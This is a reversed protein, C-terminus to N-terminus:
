DFAGESPGPSPAISAVAALVVVLLVVGGIIVFTTTGPGRRRREGEPTQQGANASIAASAVSVRSLGNAALAHRELDFSIAGAPKVMTAAAPAKHGEGMAAVCPHSTMALAVTAAAIRLLVNM